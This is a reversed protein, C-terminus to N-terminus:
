GESQSVEQPRSSSEAVINRVRGAAIVEAVAIAERIEQDTVGFRRAKEM